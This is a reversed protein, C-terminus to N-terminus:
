LSISNLTSTVWDPFIGRQMLLKWHPAPTYDRHRIVRIHLDNLKYRGVEPECWCDYSTEHGTEEVHVLNAELTKM